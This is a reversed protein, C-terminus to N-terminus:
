HPTQTPPPPITAFRITMAVGPDLNKAHVDGGCGEIASEACSIDALRMEATANEEARRFVLDAPQHPINPGSDTVIIVASNGYTGCGISVKKREAHRLVYPKDLLINLLAQRIEEERGKIMVGEPIKGVDLVTGSPLYHLRAVSAASEIVEALNTEESKSHGELLMRRGEVTANELANISDRLSIFNNAKSKILGDQAPLRKIMRANMYATTIYDTFNLFVAHYITNIIRLRNLEKKPDNEADIPYESEMIPTASEVLQEINLSLRTGETVTRGEQNPSYQCKIGFYANYITEVKKYASTFRKEPMDYVWDQSEQGALKSLRIDRLYDSLAKAEYSIMNLAKGSITTRKRQRAIELELTQTELESEEM